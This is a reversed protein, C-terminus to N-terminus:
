VTFTSQKIFIVIKMEQYFDELTVFKIFLFGAMALSVKPYTQGLINFLMNKTQGYHVFDLTRLIIKFIPNFNQLGVTKHSFLWVM